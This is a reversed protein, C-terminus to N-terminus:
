FISEPLKSVTWTGFKKGVWAWFVFLLIRSVTRFGKRRQDLDLRGDAVKVTEKEKAFKPELKVVHRQTCRIEIRWRRRDIEEAVVAVVWRFGKEERESEGGRIRRRKNSRESERSGIVDKARTERRGSEMFGLNPEPADRLYRLRRNWDNGGTVAGRTFGPSVRKSAKTQYHESSKYKRQGKPLTVFKTPEINLQQSHNYLSQIPVGISWERVIPKIHFWIM